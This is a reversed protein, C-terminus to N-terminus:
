RHDIAKLPGHFAPKKIRIIKPRYHQNEAMRNGKYRILLFSIAFFGVAGVVSATSGEINFFPGAANGAFAGAIMCIVPFVYLLFTAKLLAASEISVMVHDGIAAGIQNIADVEMDQGDGDPSACAHRASCSACASGRRTKVRATAGEVSIVVGEETAM